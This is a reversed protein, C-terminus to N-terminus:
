SRQIIHWADEQLMQKWLSPNAEGPRGGGDLEWMRQVTNVLCTIQQTWDKHFASPKKKDMTNTAEDHMASYHSYAKGLRIKVEKVSTGDKTQTSWDILAKTVEGPARAALMIGTRLWDRWNDGASNRKKSTQKWIPRWTNRPRGRKREGKPNWTFVQRTISDVPKRFTHGIWGKQAPWQPWHLGGQRQGTFFLLSM